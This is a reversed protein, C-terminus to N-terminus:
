EQNNNKLFFRREQKLSRLEIFREIRRQIKWAEKIIEVSKENRGYAHIRAPVLFAKKSVGSCIGFHRCKVVGKGPIHKSFSRVFESSSVTKKCNM